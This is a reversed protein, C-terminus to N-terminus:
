AGCRGDKLFQLILANIKSQLDAPGHDNMDNHRSDTITTICTDTGMEQATPLVGADAAFDSGRISLVRISPTRPLPFRRNDLTVLTAALTPSERLALASLDGGNSHGVLVLNSWDFETYTISLTDRVFRLNRAGRQWMPTRNAFLDGTNAIAPDSPLDHQIAVVLYGSGSLANAIFSYDTHRLGYGQSLFAVPCPSKRACNQQQAPFYLEIPIQRDRSADWLEVPKTSLSKQAATTTCGTLIALAAIAVLRM